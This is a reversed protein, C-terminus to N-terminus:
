INFKELAVTRWRLYEEIHAVVDADEIEFVEDSDDDDKPLSILLDLSSVITFEKGLTEFSIGYLSPREGAVFSVTVDELYFAQIKAGDPGDLVEAVGQSRAAKALRKVVDQSIKM